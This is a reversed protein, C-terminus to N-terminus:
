PSGMGMVGNIFHIDKDAHPVFSLADELLQPVIAFGLHRELWPVAGAAGHVTGEL